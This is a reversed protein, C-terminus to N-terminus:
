RQPPAARRVACRQGVSETAAAAGGSLSVDLASDFAAKQKELASDFDM